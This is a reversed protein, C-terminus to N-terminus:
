AKQYIHNWYFSDGSAWTFPVATGVDANRAYTTSANIAVIRIISTTLHIAFGWYLVNPGADYFSCASNNTLVGGAATKPLQVDLPGAMSSTSGLVVSGWFHVYDNIETYRSVVTANGKTFNYFVQTSSIDTYVGPDSVQPEMTYLWASGNWVLVRNTDTEYILQGEFPATPRTTSTCVGPRANSGVNSIAM